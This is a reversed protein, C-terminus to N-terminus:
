RDAERIDSQSDPLRDIAALIEMEVENDTLRRESEGGAQAIYCATHLLLKRGYANAHQFCNVIYDLEKKPEQEAPTSQIGLLDDANIDLISCLRKIDKVSPERKDKEWYNVCAKSVGLAEALDVQKMGKQERASVLRDGLMDISRKEEKTNNYARLKVSDINKTILITVFISFGM